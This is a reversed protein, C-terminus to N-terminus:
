LKNWPHNIIPNTTQELLKTGILPIFTPFSPSFSSSSTFIEPSPNLNSKIIKGAEEKQLKCKELRRKKRNKNQDIADVDIKIKGILITNETKLKAITKNLEEILVNMKTNQNLLHKRNRKLFNLEADTLENEKSKCAVNEPLQKNSIKLNKIKEELIVIKAQLGQITFLPKTDNPKKIKKKLIDNDNKLSNAHEKLMNVDFVLQDNKSKLEANENSTKAIMKYCESTTKKENDLDCKLQFYAYTTRDLENKQETHLKYLSNYVDISVVTPVAPNYLEMGQNYNYIPPMTTM